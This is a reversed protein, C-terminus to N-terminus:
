SFYYLRLIFLVIFYFSTFLFISLFFHFSFSLTFFYPIIHFYRYYYVIFSHIFICVIFLLHIFVHIVFYLFLISFSSDSILSYYVCFSGLHFLALDLLLLFLFTYSPLSYPPYESIHTKSILYFSSLPQLFLFYLKHPNHDTCPKTVYVNSPTISLVSSLLTYSVVWPHVPLCFLIVVPLIFPYSM